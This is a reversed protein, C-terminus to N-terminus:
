YPKVILPAEPVTQGWIPDGDPSLILELHGKQYALYVIAQAKVQAMLTYAAQIQEETAAPENVLFRAKFKEFEKFLEEENVGLPM